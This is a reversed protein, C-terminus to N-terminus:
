SVFHKDLHKKFKLLLIISVVSTLLDAFPQAYYIGDIGITMCFVFIAPIYLIGQRSVAIIAGQKGNGTAQFTLMSFYTLGILIFFINNYRIFRAGVAITEADTTFAGILNPAIFHILVTMSITFITLTSLTFKFADNFRKRNKAGYCYSAIPQYGQLYGLISFQLMMTIKLVLGYASQITAGVDVSPAFAVAANNTISVAITSLIQTVGIPAGSRLVEGMVNEKFTFYKFKLKSKMKGTFYFFSIFAFSLGQAITTALSAGELGMNLGFGNLDFMFIPDLIINSIAGISLATMSLMAKTEARAINNFTQNPISFVSGVYMWVGYEKAHEMVAETTGFLTFIPEIFILGLFMFLFGSIFSIFISTSALKNAYEDKAAGFARGIAAASGAGLIQGIASMLTMIPFAVAIANLALKDDLLGIFYTDVLNYIAMILMGAIAPLGIKMVAKPIPMEGLVDNNLTSM